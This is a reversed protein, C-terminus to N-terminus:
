EKDRWVQILWLVVASALYGLYGPDFGWLTERM